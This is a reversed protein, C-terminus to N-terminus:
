QRPGDLPIGAKIRYNVTNYNLGTLEAIEAITREAGRFTFFVNTRKNRNQEKRTAFRCNEPSYPGDNDIRDLTLGTKWKGEAWSSFAGFDNVWEACVSIGRGGYNPYCEMNKNRCRDLMNGWTSYLASKRKGHKTHTEIAREIKLCGCSKSVSLSEAMFSKIVGCDCRCIVYRRPKGGHTSRHGDEAIIVLREFRAGITFRRPDNRM